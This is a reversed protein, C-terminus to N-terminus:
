MNREERETKPRLESGGFSNRKKRVRSYFWSGGQELSSFFFQLGKKKKKKKPRLDRMTRSKSAALKSGVSVPATEGTEKAQTPGGRLLSWGVPILIMAMRL